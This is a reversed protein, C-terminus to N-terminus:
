GAPRAPRGRYPRRQAGRRIGSAARRAPPVSPPRASSSRGGRRRRARARRATRSSTRLRFQGRRCGWRWGAPTGTSNWGEDRMRIHDDRNEKNKSTIQLVEAHDGHTRLIVCYHKAEEDRERFPVMALWVEGPSPQAGGGGVEWGHPANRACARVTKFWTWALTGVVVCQVTAAMTWGPDQGFIKPVLFDRVLVAVLSCLSTLGAARLPVVWLPVRRSRGALWDLLLAVGYSIAVRALTPCHARQNHIVNAETAAHQAVLLYQNGATFRRDLTGLVDTTSPAQRLQEPTLGTQATDAPTVPAFAPPRILFTSRGVATWAGEEYRLALAAVEIPQAPYGTPTTTEFDIVVFTTALVAPDETLSGM